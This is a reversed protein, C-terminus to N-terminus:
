QFVREAGRSRYPDMGPIFFRSKGRQKAEFDYQFLLAIQDAGRSGSRIANFGHGYILKILWSGAPSIYSLGGGVGSHWSGRQELGPLYEVLGYAGQFDLRMSKFPPLPLSYLVNALFAREASIEQFYYGPINLPFESSFPLNGGLRFASIRDAAVTTVGTIAAEFLHETRGFGYKILSRTWFLHSVSEILRDDMYGYEENKGRIRAEHWASLEMAWPETLSPEQGGFRLGSRIRFTTMDGPIEFDDATRRDRDFLTHHVSGRAIFYLPIVRGPNFRHYISASVEGGHGLFSEERFYNGRRIESYSDAFGGGAVGFAM